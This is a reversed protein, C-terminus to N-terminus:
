NSAPLGRDSPATQPSPRVKFEVSRHAAIDEARIRYYRKPGLVREGYDAQSRVSRVTPGLGVRVAEDSLQDDGRENPFIVPPRVPSLFPLAHRVLQMQTYAWTSIFRFHGWQGLDGDNSPEGALAVTLCKHKFLNQSRGRASPAFFGATSSARVQM